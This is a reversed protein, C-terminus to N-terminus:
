RPGGPAARDGRASVIPRAPEGDGPGPRPGEDPLRERRLFTRAVWHAAMGAAFGAAVAAIEEWLEPPRRRYYPM